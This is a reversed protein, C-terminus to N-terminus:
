GSPKAAIREILAGAVHGGFGAAFVAHRNLPAGSQGDHNIRLSGHDATIPNTVWPMPPRRQMRACLCALVFSALGAAGLGHGIAGKSAYLDSEGSVHKALVVLEAPDHDRTGTAHPHIMDVPRGAMVREAVHALAPMGPAARVLDHAEAAEATEVLEVQGPQPERVTELAVAAGIEALMFGSRSEDLPAGRYANATLNALVGLRQYSYILEPLMAAESTLVLARTPGGCAASNILHLRARHLAILSSACAAVTHVAWEGGLRERLNTLMYAHPGLAVALREQEGARDGLVVARRLAGIAGKGTGLFCVSSEAPKAPDSGAEYLAERAAREALEVAPDAGAHQASIVCGLTRVVAVPDADPPLDKARDAITQGRLLAAFTNVASVGLPTVMGLGTVVIRPRSTSSVNNM